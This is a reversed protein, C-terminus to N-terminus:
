VRDTRRLLLFAAQCARLSVSACLYRGGRWRSQEFPFIPFQGVVRGAAMGARMGETERAVAAM